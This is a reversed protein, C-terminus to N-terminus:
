QMFYPISAPAPALFYVTVYGSWTQWDSDSYGLDIWPRDDPFGGGSDEFIGYGYGPVFVQMGQLINFWDTYTAVVGKKLPVGGATGNFCQGPVGSRCPSYSTAYMQIARWYQITVGDVTTTKLVLQTGRAVVRSQPPRILVESETSRSVVQGDEYRVRMRTIALGNQGPQVTKEEGLEIDASDQFETSFAIIKQTFQFAESVRVIRIQGDTPLLENEPPSSYDLGELPLGGKALAEGVSASAARITFVHNDVYISLEEAPQYSISTQDNIPSDAPPDLADGNLLQIGNEQLVEGVSASITRITQPGQPTILSLDVARRLQLTDGAKFPEPQDMAVLLGNLYVADDPAINVGSQTLILLPIAESTRIVQSKGEVILNIEVLRNPQCGTSLWTVLLCVPLLRPKLRSVSPNIKTVATLWVVPKRSPNTVKM